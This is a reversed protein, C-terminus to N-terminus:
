MAQFFLILILQTSITVIQFVIVAAIAIRALPFNKHVFLLLACLSAIIFVILIFAEGGMQRIIRVFLNEVESLAHLMYFALFGDLVNLLIIITFLIFAGTGYRDVYYGGQRDDARRAKRRKGGWFAYRSLMPTPKERRDERKRREVMPGEGTM